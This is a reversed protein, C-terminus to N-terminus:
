RLSRGLLAAGVAVLVAVHMGSVYASRAAGLVAAGVPGALQEAVVTAGGLTEEAAASAEAPLGPPLLESLRSGYVAALVSGLVAM